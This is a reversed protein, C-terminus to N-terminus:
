QDEQTGPKHTPLIGLRSNVYKLVRRQAASDLESLADTVIQMAEVESEVLVRSRKGAKAFQVRKTAKERPAGSDNKNPEAELGLKIARRYVQLAICDGLQEAIDQNTLKGYNARILADERATFERKAM